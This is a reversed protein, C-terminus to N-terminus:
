AWYWKHKDYPDKPGDPLVRLVTVQFKGLRSELRQMLTAANSQEGAVAVIRDGVKLKLSDDKALKNGEMIAGDGISQVVLGHESLPKAFSLGHSQQADGRDVFVVVELARRIVLHLKTAGAIESKLQVADGRKDNVCIVFDSRRIEVNKDATANYEQLPGPLVRIVYLAHTEQYNVDMGWPKEVSTRELTVRFESPPGPPFDKDGKVKLRLLPSESASAAEVLPLEGNFGGNRFKESSLECRGLLEPSSADEAYLVFELPLDQSPSTFECEEGWIPDLTDSISKTRYVENGAVRIVCYCEPKSAGPYWFSNRLGRTGVIAVVLRPGPPPDTASQPEVAKIPEDIRLGPETEHGPPSPMIDPGGANPPPEGVCCDCAKNGSNGMAVAFV